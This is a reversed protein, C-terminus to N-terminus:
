LLQRREAFERESLSGRELEWELAPLLRARARARLAPDPAVRDVAALVTEPTADAGEGAAVAAVRARGRQGLVGAGGALGAAGLAAVTVVARRHRRLRRRVRTALSPAKAGVPKGSLFLALDDRLAAATAYRQEPAKELAHLCVLDLARPVGPAFHS